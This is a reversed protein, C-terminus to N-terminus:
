AANKQWKRAANEVTDEAVDRSCIPCQCLIDRKRRRNLCCFENSDCILESNQIIYIFIQRKSISEGNHTM